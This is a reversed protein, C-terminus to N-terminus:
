RVQPPKSKKVAVTPPRHSLRSASPLGHHIVAFESAWKTYRSVAM